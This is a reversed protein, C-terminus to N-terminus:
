WCRWSARRARRTWCGSWGCRPVLLGADLPSVDIATVATQSRPAVLDIEAIVLGILALDLTLILSLYPREKSAEFIRSAIPLAISSRRAIL